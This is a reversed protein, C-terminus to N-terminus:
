EYTRSAALIEALTSWEPQVPIAEGKNRYYGDMDTVWASMAELFSGLTANEWSDPQQDFDAVLARIFKAFDDRSKVNGPDIASM